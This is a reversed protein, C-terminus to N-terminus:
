GKGKEISAKKGGEKEGKKGLKEIGSEVEKSAKAAEAGAGELKQKAQDSWRASEGGITEQTGGIWRLIKDPLSTILNFSEQVVTIYMTTYLLLMFFISMMAAFGIYGQNLVDRKMIPADIKARMSEPVYAELFSNGFNGKQVFDLLEQFGANILKVGVFSLTIGAIYGIIMMAPRLFVNLLLM